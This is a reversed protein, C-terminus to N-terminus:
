SAVRDSERAPRRDVADHAVVLQAIDLGVQLLLDPRERARVVLAVAALEIREVQAHMVALRAMGVAMAHLDLDLRFRDAGLLEAALRDADVGEM